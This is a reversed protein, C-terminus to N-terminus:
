RPAWRYKCTSVGEKGVRRDGPGAVGFGRDPRRAAGGAAGGAPVAARDLGLVDGDIVARAFCHQVQGLGGCARLAAVGAAGVDAARPLCLAHKRAAAAIALAVLVRREAGGRDVAAGLGVVGTAAVTVATATSAALGALRRREEGRDIRDQLGVVQADQGAVSVARRSRM